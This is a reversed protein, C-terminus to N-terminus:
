RHGGEVFAIRHDRLRALRERTPVVRAADVVANAAVSVDAIPALAKEALALITRDDDIVLLNPMSKSWKSRPASQAGTENHPAQLATGAAM